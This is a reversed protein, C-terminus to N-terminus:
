KSIRELYRIARQMIQVDDQFHGIARNCNFCLLGRVVGTAHCHDVHPTKTFVARCIACANEQSALMADYASMTLGYRKCLENARRRQPNAERHRKALAKYYARVHENEAYAKRKAANIKDRNKRRLERWKEKNARYYRNM